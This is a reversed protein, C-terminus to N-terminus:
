YLMIYNCINFTFHVFVSGYVCKDRRAVIGFAIGGAFTYFLLYLLRPLTNSEFLIRIPLHVFLFLVSTFAIGRLDGFRKTMVGQIYGRFMVEECFAIIMNNPIEHILYSFDAKGDDALFIRIALIVCSTIFFPIAFWFKNLFAAKANKTKLGLAPILKTNFGFKEIILFVAFLASASLYLFLTLSILKKHDFLFYFGISYIHHMYYNFIFFLATVALTFVACFVVSRNLYKKNYQMDAEDPPPFNLLKLIRIIL